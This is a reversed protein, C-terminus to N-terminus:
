QSTLSRLQREIDALRWMIDNPFRNETYVRLAAEFCAKANKLNAAREGTPLQAYANGLNAQIIAWNLPFDKETSVRLAAEYLASAKQLNAARDGTPLL